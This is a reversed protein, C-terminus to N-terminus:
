FDLYSSLLIKKLGCVKKPLAHSDSFGNNKKQKKQPCVKVIKHGASELAKIIGRIHIGEAGDELARHHYLIKM